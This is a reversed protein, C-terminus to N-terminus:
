LFFETVTFLVVSQEGKLNIIILQWLRIALFALKKCIVLSYLGSKIAPVYDQSDQLMLLLSIKRGSVIRESPVSIIPM